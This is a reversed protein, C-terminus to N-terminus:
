AHKITVIRANLPSELPRTSPIPAFLVIWLTRILCSYPVFLTYLPSLEGSKKIIENKKM